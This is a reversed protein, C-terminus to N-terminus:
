SGVAPRFRRTTTTEFGGLVAEIYRLRGFHFTASIRTFAFRNRRRIFLHRGKPSIKRPVGNGSLYKDSYSNSRLADSKTKTSPWIRKHRFIRRGPQIDRLGVVIFKGGL